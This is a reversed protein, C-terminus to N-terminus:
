HADERPRKPRRMVEVVMLVTAVLAPLCGIVRLAGWVDLPHGPYQGLHAQTIRVVTDCLVAMGFWFCFRSQALATRHVPADPSPDACQGELVATRRVYWSLSLLAGVLLLNALILHGFLSGMAAVAEM